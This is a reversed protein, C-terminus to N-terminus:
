TSILVFTKKIKVKKNIIALLGSSTNGACSPNTQARWRDGNKLSITKDMPPQVNEIQFSPTETLKCM